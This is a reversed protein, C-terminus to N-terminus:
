LRFVKSGEIKGTTDFILSKIEPWFTDNGHIFEDHAQAVVVVDFGNNLLDSLALKPIKNGAVEFSEVNPDVFYVSFGYGTLASILDAAPTERIDSSNPKYAVGFVAVKVGEIKSIKKEELYVDRVRKAVYEPMESNIRQALSIFEFDEGIEKKLKYALYSPDIPICHGGVGIGPFFPQFGFPKTSAARIVDWVDINLSNCLRAFENVLAINVQRYTNELLKATEAEKTGRTIFISSVFSGYFNAARDLSKPDDAGVIKPTNSIGFNRNGPDVREPSFALFFDLGLVLGSGELIPALVEMTTGPYTTSELIVTTGHSMNQAVDGTASIVFSLDPAGDSGLPTPVCIAIVDMGKLVRPDSHAMFGADLMEAVESDSVDEIHSKGQNLVKTRQSSVDLGLVKHGAGLAARALPLGVYGLGIVAVKLSV